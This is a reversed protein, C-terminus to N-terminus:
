ANLARVIRKGVLAMGWDGPHLAVGNVTVEHVNGDAGTVYTGLGCMYKSDTAIDAIHVMELQQAVAINRKAQEVSEKYWFNGVLVIKAYPALNRCYNIMINMDWEWTSSDVVNDGLQIIIMDDTPRVLSNLTSLWISRDTQEVEWQWYNFTRCNTEVYPSFANKVVHVYDQEATTAAMGWEGWWDYQIGHYTLSNGLVLIDLKDDGSRGALASAASPNTVFTEPGGIDKNYITINRAFGGVFMDANNNVGYVHIFFIGTENHSSLDIDASFTGNDNEQLSYWRVDNQGNKSGWIAARVNRMGYANELSLTVKGSGDGADDVTFKPADYSELEFSSGAIFTSGSYVHVQFRGTSRHIGLNVNATFSGDSQKTLDYWILDDQGNVDSWIAAAAASYKLANELSVSLLQGDLETKLEPEPIDIGSMDLEKGDIFSNKGNITGYAHFYFMGKEGHSLLDTEAAFTGNGQEALEYWKLDNQGDKKGWVAVRVNSFGFANNITLTVKSESDAAKEVTMAPAECSDLVVYKGGMFKRGSYVHINFKGTSNHQWLNAMVTFSGDAEKTMPYWKLDDQGDTESWVAAEASPYTEANTLTVSLMQGDLAADVVPEPLPIGIYDFECGDVFSRKSNCDGYAHFYFMGNESHGSLDVVASFTGNGLDTLDYWKLDNQGGQDGWVAAKVNSYGDANIINIFVNRQDEPDEAVTIDPSVFSELYVREGAMFASGSYVHIYYTGISKHLGLNVAATFSGDANETMPYWIIDDQGNVESWIAASASPYSDPNTVTVTLFQGSLEAYISSQERLETVAEDNQGDTDPDGDTDAGRGDMIIDGTDNGDTLEESIETVGSPEESGSVSGEIENQIDAPDEEAFVATSMFVSGAMFIAAAMTLSKNKLM